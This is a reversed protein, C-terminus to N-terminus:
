ADSEGMADAIARMCDVIRSAGNGAWTYISRVADAEAASFGIGLVAEGVREARTRRRLAEDREREAKEARERLERTTALSTQIAETRSALQRRLADIESEAAKANTARCSSM